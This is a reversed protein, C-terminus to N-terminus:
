PHRSRWRILALPVVILALLASLYTIFTLIQATRIGLLALGDRLRAALGPEWNPQGASAVGPPLAQLVVGDLPVAKLEASGGLALM